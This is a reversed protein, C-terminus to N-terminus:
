VEFDMKKMQEEGVHFIDEFALMNLKVKTVNISRSKIIVREGDTDDDGAAESEGEGNGIISEPDLEVTPEAGDDNDYNDVVDMVKEAYESLMREEETM